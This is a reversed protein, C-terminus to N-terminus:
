RELSMAITTKNISIVRGAAIAIRKTTSVRLYEGPSIGTLTLDTVLDCGSKRQFNHIYHDEVEAVNGFVVLDIISQGYTQRMEPTRLWM